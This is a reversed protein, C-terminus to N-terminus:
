INRWIKKVLPSIKSFFQFFDNFFFSQFIFLIDYWDLTAGFNKKVEDHYCEVNDLNQTTLKRWDAEGYDLFYIFLKPNFIPSKLESGGQPVLLAGHVSIVM